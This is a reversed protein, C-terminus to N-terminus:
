PALRQLRWSGDPQRTYLIRDHLRSPRGQWFEIAHPVVRLGGWHEPRPVPAGAFRETLERNLRELEQRSAIPTSQQSVWAGIQAEVPRTRFYAESEEASVREVTGEIRVQRELPQWHICLAARPNAALERGKRSDYNTYFTFGRDDFGKLLVIRASPAGDAGATALTMSNPEPVKAACADDFWRAFTVLPDSSVDAEDLTGRAYEARLESPVSAMAADPSRNDM